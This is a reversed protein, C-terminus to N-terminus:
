VQEQACTWIATSALPGPAASASVAAGAAAAAPPPPPSHPPRLRAVTGTGSTAADAGDMKPRTM